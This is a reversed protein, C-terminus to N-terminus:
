IAKEDFKNNKYNSLWDKHKTGIKEFFPVFYKQMDAKFDGTTMFPEAFTVTKDEFSFGVMIIPINAGHAMYYFGTRLKSVNKRTGEPALAFLMDKSSKIAEVQSDVMNNNSTRYAPIGGLMRFFWGIPPRFLESKGIFGINLKMYSRLGIGLVFDRWYYHPTVAFVAKKLESSIQGKVKWGFLRFLFAYLIKM